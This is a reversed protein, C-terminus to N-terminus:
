AVRGARHRGNQLIQAWLDPAHQQSKSTVQPHHDALWALHDIGHHLVQGLHVDLPRPQVPSVAATPHIPDPSVLWGPGDPNPDTACLYTLIVCGALPSWRWSTSHLVSTTEPATTDDLGILEAARADPDAFGQTSAGTFLEYMLDTPLGSRLASDLPSGTGVLPATVARGVISGSEDLGIGICEVEVSGTQLLRPHKATRMMTTM